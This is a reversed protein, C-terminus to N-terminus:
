VQCGWIVKYGFQLVLFSIALDKYCRKYNKCFISQLLMM